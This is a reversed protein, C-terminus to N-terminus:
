KVQRFGAAGAENMCRNFETVAGVSVLTHDNTLYCYKTEGKENKLIAETKSACASVLLLISIVTLTNRKMHAGSYKFFSLRVTSSNKMTRTTQFSM